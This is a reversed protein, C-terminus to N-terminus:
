SLNMVSVAYGDVRKVFLRKVKFHQGHWDNYWMDGEGLESEWINGADILEQTLRVGYYDTTATRGEGNDDTERICAIGGDELVVTIEETGDIVRYKMVTEVIEIERDAFESRLEEESMNKYFALRDARYFQMLVELDVNEACHDALQTALEEMKEVTM